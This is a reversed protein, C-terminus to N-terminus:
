EYEVLYGLRDGKIIRLSVQEIFPYGDDDFIEALVLGDIVAKATPAYGDVDIRRKDKRVVTFVIRSPNSAVPAYAQLAAYYTGTKWAQVKANRAHFHDRDNSKLPKGFGEGLDLTFM